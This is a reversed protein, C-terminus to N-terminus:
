KICIDGTFIQGFDQAISKIGLAVPAAKVLGYYEAEGSLLAVVAQNTSWSEIVHGGHMVIVGSTSKRTVQCGAFDTDAWGSLAGPKEQCLHKLM